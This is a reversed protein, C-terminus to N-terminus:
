AETLAGEALLEGLAADWAALTEDIDAQSHVASVIGGNGFYQVGHNIMALNLLRQTEPNTGALLLDLPLENAEYARPEPPAGGALILRFVSAGGYAAGAIRRDALARNMGAQLAQANATAADQTSGGAIKTLAATGAAASLPNANFTGPHGVKTGKKDSPFSLREM